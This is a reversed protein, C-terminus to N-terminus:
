SQQDSWALDALVREIRARAHDTPGPSPVLLLRDQEIADLVRAAVHEPSLSPTTNDFAGLVASPRDPVALPSPRNREADRIRTDVPGPCVVTVGIDIANAVLEVQLTELLGLVAYKSAAYPANGGNTVPALGAISSVALVHGRGASVMTPLFANLANIVGGLNVDLVWRWDQPRQEWTPMRPGIVGAISCLLDVRGWHDLVHDRVEEFRTGDTVDLQLADVVAGTTSRIDAAAVDLSDQEVDLMLVMLGRAALASSVARGIGSAAGTVVAVQNPGLLM